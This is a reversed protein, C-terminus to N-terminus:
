LDSNASPESLIQKLYVSYASPISYRSQIQKVSALVMGETLQEPLHQLHIRYGHMHWEVHSFIHKGAGLLEIESGDSEWEALRERVQGVTLKGQESPFEWLGALLGKEPRQQILYSGHYELLFVTREEVKRPKKPPKYPFEQYTGNEGAGCFAAVPCGDCLPMGNPLCVGAGLDMLAQNFEGASDAPVIKAVEGRIRKKVSAQTIDSHDECIRTYIRYVNGDVAPVRQGFAISAIAGATYEGIGPLLLLQEYKEPFVGGHKEVIQQAAKKLNRARNYYGLGQWLKMLEDDSVAALASVCPLKQLFRQYYGKVAEVRTQQLMIESIWISYPDRGERWPLARKEVAYWRLLPAVIEQMKKKM